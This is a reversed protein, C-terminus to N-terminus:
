ATAIGPIVSSDSRLVLKAIKSAVRQMEDTVVDGHINLTTQIDCHRM